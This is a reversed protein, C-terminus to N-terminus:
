KNERVYAKGSLGSITDRQSSSKIRMRVETLARRMFGFSSGIRDSLTPLGIGKQVSYRPIPRAASLRLGGDSSFIQRYGCRDLAGLVRRDYLGFPIAASQVARGTIDELISRSDNIERALAKDSARTWDIHDMGHSGIEFGQDLLERVQRRSLYGACDLRGALVFFAAHLGHRQLAPATITHDSLNGDDVTLRICERRPHRKVLDLIGELYDAGIWYRNEGVELSRPAEGVGHLNIIFQV